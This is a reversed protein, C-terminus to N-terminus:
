PPLSTSTSVPRAARDARSNDYRAVLTCLREAILEGALRHGLENWHGFGTPTNPFGHLYAHHSQAYEQLPRALSIVDFGEKRGLAAIRDDPYFLDQLGMQEMFRRRVEPDPWVQIGTDLTAVLLIANHKRTERNIEAILAETVEWAQRWTEDPPPRYINYNIAPEIPYDPTPQRVPHLLLDAAKALLKFPSIGRYDFRALCWLRYSASSFFPGIPELRGDELTYFPRCRNTELSVSNNRIDNGLFVALVVADPQYAWVDRKLTVLEQATGYGDVGFNIAEPMRGGLAPCARLRQEMVSWFTKELPVQIAQAYSDGLIAVRFRGPPKQKQHERDRLGQSNIQVYARGERTWWGSVGPRLGWGRDPDYCYFYPFFHNAVMVGIQLIVLAV